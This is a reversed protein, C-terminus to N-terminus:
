AVNIIDGGEQMNSLSERAQSKIVADTLEPEKHLM